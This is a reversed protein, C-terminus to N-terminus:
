VHARGIKFTKWLLKMHQYDEECMFSQSLDDYCEEQKPIHRTSLSKYSTILGYFIPEKRTMLGIDSEDYPNNHYELYQKLLLRTYRYNNLDKGLTDSVIRKLPASIM